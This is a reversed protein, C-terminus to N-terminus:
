ERAEGTASGWAAAMVGAGAGSSALRAVLQVNEPEFPADKALTDCFDHEVMTSEATATGEPM